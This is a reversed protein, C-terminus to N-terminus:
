LIMGLLMYFGVAYVVIAIVTGLNFLRDFFSGEGSHHIPFNFHIDSNIQRMRSFLRDIDEVNEDIMYCNDNMNALYFNGREYGPVVYKISTIKDIDTYENKRTLGKKILVNDKLVYRKAMDSVLVLFLALWVIILGVYIPIDFYEPDAYFPALALAIGFTFVFSSWAHLFTTSIFFVNAKNRRTKSISIAVVVALIISLIVRFVTENM